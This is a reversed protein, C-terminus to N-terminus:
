LQTNSRVQLLTLLLFDSLYIDKCDKINQNLVILIELVIKYHSLDDNFLLLLILSM